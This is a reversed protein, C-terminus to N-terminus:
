CWRGNGNCGVANTMNKQPPLASAWIARQRGRRAPADKSLFILNLARGPLLDRTVPGFTEALVLRGATCLIKRQREDDTDVKKKRECSGKQKSNSKSTGKVHAHQELRTSGVSRRSAAAWELRPWNVKGRERKLFRRRHSPTLHNLPLLSSKNSAPVRDQAAKFLLHPRPGLLHLWVVLPRVEVLFRALRSSLKQM